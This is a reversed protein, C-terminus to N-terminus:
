KEWCVNENVCALMYTAYRDSNAEEGKIELHLDLRSKLCAETTKLMAEKMTFGRYHFVGVDGTEIRCHHFAEKDDARVSYVCLLTVLVFIAVLNLFRLIKNM